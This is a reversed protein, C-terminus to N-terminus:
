DREMLQNIFVRLDSLYNMLQFSMNGEFKCQINGEENLTYEVSFSGNTNNFSIAFSEIFCSAMNINDNDLISNIKKEPIGFSKLIKPTLSLLMDKSLKLENPNISLYLGNTSLALAGNSYDMKFFVESQRFNQTNM